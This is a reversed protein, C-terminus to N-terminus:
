MYIYTLCHISSTADMIYFEHVMYPAVAIENEHCSIGMLQVKLLM